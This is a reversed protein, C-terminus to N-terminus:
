TRRFHAVFVGAWIVSSLMFAALGLLLLGTHLHPPQVRNAQIVLAHVYSLFAVLICGFLAAQRAMYALTEDKREPALWYGKNPLRLLSVPVRRMLWAPLALVFPLFVILGAMLAVYGERPMSGNAGGGSEFHSALVPPLMVSSAVVFLAGVVMFALMLRFM